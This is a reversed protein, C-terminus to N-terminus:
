LCVMRGNSDSYWVKKLSYFRVARQCFKCPKAMVLQGDKTLRVVAMQYPFEMASPFKKRLEVLAAIEAHLFCFNSLSFKKQLPHTKLSNVGVALVDRHHFVVAALRIGGVGPVEKAASIAIETATTLNM